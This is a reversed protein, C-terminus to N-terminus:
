TMRIKSHAVKNLSFSHSPKLFPDKKKTRKSVKFFGLLLAAWIVIILIAGVLYLSLSIQLMM